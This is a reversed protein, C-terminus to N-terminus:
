APSPVTFEHREKPTNDDNGNSKLMYWLYRLRLSLPAKRNLLRRQEREPYESVEELYLAIGERLSKDVAEFSDGQVSIDLDLCVAEWQGPQGEAYCHFIM